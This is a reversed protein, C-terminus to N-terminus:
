RPYFPYDLVSFTYSSGVDLDRGYIRGDAYSGIGTSPDAMAVWLDKWNVMSWSKLVSIEMLDSTSVVNVGLPSDMSTQTVFSLKGGQQVFHHQENMSSYLYTTASDMCVPRPQTTPPADYAWTKEITWKTGANATTSSLLCCQGRRLDPLPYTLKTVAVYLKGNLPIVPSTHAYGSVPLIATGKQSYSTWQLANPVYLQGAYSWMNISCGPIQNYFGHYEMNPMRELPLSDGVVNSMSGLHLGAISMLAIRQGYFGLLLFADDLSGSTGASTGCRIPESWNVGDPSRVIYSGFPWKRDQICALSYYYWGDHYRAYKFGGPLALGDYDAATKWTLFDKTYQIRFRFKDYTGNAGYALTTGTVLNRDLM